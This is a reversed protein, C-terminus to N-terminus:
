RSSIPDWRAVARIDRSSSGVAIEHDGPAVVWDAAETSWHAFARRDLAITVTTTEGPALAVKEFGKLEQVPRATATVQPRVYLQVVESGARTGTNAVEVQALVAGTDPEATLTLPSYGFTTYSLGHGFPWRPEVHNTDYHRYGVLLAEAYTVTEGDGPFNGHAPADEM